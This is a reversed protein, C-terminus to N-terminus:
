RARPRRQEHPRSRRVVAPQDIVGVSSKKALLAEVRRRIEDPELPREARRLVGLIAYRMLQDDKM